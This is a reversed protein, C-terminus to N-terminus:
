FPIKKMIERKEKRCILHYTVNVEPDTLPIVKRGQYADESGEFYDTTFCLLTSTRILEQMAFEDTQVLFRSAPMKRYCLETWFGLEDRLLCNFGNLQEMSLEEQEALVHSDPVCVSLKEQMYTVDALDSEQYEYPLIGIDCDGKLVHDIIKDNTEIKSSITNKPYKAALIPGIKWLPAPACSEITITHLNRDFAQVSQVAHEAENLLKQAYEVATKGTENLQIKNKGRRFLKVGFEDEVRQMTRTITPQSIHLYEAAKSLTGCEAFTTFQVLEELNLM